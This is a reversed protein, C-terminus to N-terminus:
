KILLKKGNVINFGKQKQAHKRGQLDYISANGEEKDIHVDQIGSVDFEEMLFKKWCDSSQYSTSSGKPIYLKTYLYEHTDFTNEYAEPAEIGLDIIKGVHCGYFAYEGISTLSGPLTLNQLFSCGSFACQGISDVSGSISISTMLTHDKFAEECISKVKFTRLGVSVESPIVVSEKNTACGAVDCTQETYSIIEYDIGDVRFSDAFSAIPSAFLSILMALLVVCSKRKM